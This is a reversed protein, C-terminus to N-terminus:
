LLDAIFRILVKVGEEDRDQRTERLRGKRLGARRGGSELFM